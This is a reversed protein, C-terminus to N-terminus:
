FCIASIEEPGSKGEQRLLVIGGGESAVAEEGSGDVGLAWEM